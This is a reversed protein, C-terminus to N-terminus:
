KGTKKRTLKPLNKPNLFKKKEDLDSVKPM